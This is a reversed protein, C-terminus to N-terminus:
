AVHYKNKSTFAIHALRETIQQLAFADIKAADAAFFQVISVLCGESCRELVFLGVKEDIAGAVGSFWVHIGAFGVLGIADGAVRHERPYNVCCTSFGSDRPAMNGTTADERSICRVAAAERFCGDGVEREAGVVTAKVASGFRQTFFSQAVAGLVSM